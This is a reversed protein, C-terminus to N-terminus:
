HELLKRAAILYPEPDEFDSNKVSPQMRRKRLPTATPPKAVREPGMRKHLTWAPASRDSHEGYGAGNATSRSIISKRLRDRDVVAEGGNRSVVPDRLKSKFLGREHDEAERIWGGEFVEAPQLVAAAMGHPSPGRFHLKDLSALSAM